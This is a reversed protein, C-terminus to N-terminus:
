RDSDNSQPIDLRFIYNDQTSDHALSIELDLCLWFVKWVWFM